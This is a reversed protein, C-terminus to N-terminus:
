DVEKVSVIRYRVGPERLGYIKICEEVDRVVCSQRSWTGSSSYADQYEFEIEVLKEKGM